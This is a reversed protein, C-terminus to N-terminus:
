EGEDLTMLRDLREREATNMPQTLSVSGDADHDPRIQAAPEPLRTASQLEDGGRVADDDTPMATRQVAHRKNDDAHDIGYTKGNDTSLDTNFILLPVGDVPGDGLPPAGDAVEFSGRFQTLERNRVSRWHRTLARLLELAGRRNLRDDAATSRRFGAKRGKGFRGAVNRSPILYAGPRGLQSKSWTALAYRAAPHLDDALRRFRFHDKLTVFDFRELEAMTRCLLAAGQLTTEFRARWEHQQLGSGNNDTTKLYAHYRVDATKDKADTLQWGDRFHRVVAARNDLTNVYARGNGAVRYFYWDDGPAVTSFRYLETVIEALDNKSAGDSCIDFAVEMATLKPEDQLALRPSVKDFISKIQKFSKPDQLKVRFATTTTNSLGAPFPAGTSEDCGIVSVPVNVDAFKNSVHMAQTRGVTRIEFQLWDIVTELRLNGFDLEM